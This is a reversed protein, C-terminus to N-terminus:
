SDLTVKYGLKLILFRDQESGSLAREFHFLWWQCLPQWNVQPHTAKHHDPSSITFLLQYPTKAQHPLYSILIHAISDFQILYDPKRISYVICIPLTVCFRWSKDSLKTLQLISHHHFSFLILWLHPVLWLTFRMVILHFVTFQESCWVHIFELLFCSRSLRILLLLIYIRWYILFYL